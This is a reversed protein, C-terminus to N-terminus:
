QKKECVFMCASYSKRCGSWIGNLFFLFLISEIKNTSVSVKYWKSFIFSRRGMWLTNKLNARLTAAAAAANKNSWQSLREAEQSHVHKNKEVVTVEEEEEAEKKKVHYAYVCFPKETIQGKISAM